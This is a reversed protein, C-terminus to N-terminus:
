GRSPSRGRSGPSRQLTSYIHARSSERGGPLGPGAKASGVAQKREWKLEANKMRGEANAKLHDTTRPGHDTELSQQRKTPAKHSGQPRMLTAKLDCQPPRPTAVAQSDVRMSTAKIDCQHPKLTAQILTRLISFPAQCGRAVMATGHCWWPGAMTGYFWDGRELFLGGAAGFEWYRGGAVDVGRIASRRRSRCGM